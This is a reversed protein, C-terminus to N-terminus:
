LLPLGRREEKGSLPKKQGAPARGRPAQEGGSAARRSEETQSRAPVDRPPSGESNAHPRALSVGGRSARETGAAEPAMAAPVRLASQLGVGRLKVPKLKFEATYRQVKRPGKIRAM